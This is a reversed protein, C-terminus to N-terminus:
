LVVQAPSSKLRWCWGVANSSVNHSYRSFDGNVKWPCFYNVNAQLWRRAKLHVFSCVSLSAFFKPHTFTTDEPALSSPFSRKFSRSLPSRGMAETQLVTYRISFPQVIDIVCNYVSFPGVKITSFVLFSILKFFAM